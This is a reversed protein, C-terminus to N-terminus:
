VTIISINISYNGVNKVTVITWIKARMDLKLMQSNEVLERKCLERDSVTPWTVENPLKHFVMDRVDNNTSCAM